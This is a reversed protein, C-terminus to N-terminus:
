EQMADADADAAVAATPEAAGAGIQASFVLPTAELSDLDVLVATHTTSFRPVCVVLCREGGPGAVVRAGFAPQNGAFLVHPGADIVFPDETMAPFCGLTDPATPCLHGWQLTAALIDLRDDLASFRYVDDVGQGASGLLVAGGVRCQYPNPVGALTALATARPFMCSHLPQQPLITNAPDNAGPMVDTPVASALQVLMDDLLRVHRVSDAELNKLKYKAQDAADAEAM